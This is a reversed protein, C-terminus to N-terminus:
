EKQQISVAEEKININDQPVVFDALDDIYVEEDEASKEYEHKYIIDEFAEEKVNSIM